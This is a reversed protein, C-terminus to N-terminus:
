MWKCIIINVLNIYGSATESVIGSDRTAFITPIEIPRNTAAIIRGTAITVIAFVVHYVVFVATFVITVTRNGTNATM